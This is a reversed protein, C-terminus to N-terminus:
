LNYCHNLPGNGQGINLGDRIAGAVYDKSHKVSESLTYGLALNSAIACSLTCGTGHTNSSEYRKGEFWSFTDDVFYLLDSATDT